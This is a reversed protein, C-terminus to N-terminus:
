GSAMTVSVLCAFCSERSFLFYAIWYGRIFAFLAFCTVRDPYYVSFPHVHHICSACGSPPCLLSVRQSTSLRWGRGDFFRIDALRKSQLLTYKCNISVGVVWRYCGCFLFGELHAQRGAGFGDDGGHITRSYAKQTAEGTNFRSHMALSPVPPLHELCM